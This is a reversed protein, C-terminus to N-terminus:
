LGSTGRRARSLYLGAYVLADLLGFFYLLWFPELVFRHRPIVAATLVVLFWMTGLVPLFAWQFPRLRAPRFLAIFAGVLAGLYYLPLGPLSYTASYRADPLHFYTVCRQWTAELTNFWAVRDLRYHADVFARAQALSDLPSGILGPGLAASIKPKGYLSKAQKEHFTYDEFDGGSDLDVPALFKGIALGPLQWPHALACETALLRCLDSMNTGTRLELEAEDSADGADAEAPSAAHAPTLGAIAHPHEKAYVILVDSIHKATRVVDENAISAARAARTQDRLPRIYPGLGPATRPNDPTLHVLSAYLLLGSHSTKTISLMLLMLLVAAGSQLAAPRWQPLQTFLPLLVGTALLLNGEPRAAAVFFMAALVGGFTWWSPWLAYCTGALALAVACFVFGSESMLTHEWFIMAPQLAALVTLPIILWRWFTFWLRGLAGVMLILLLGRLHQAFPIVIMAPIRFLFAITYLVPTLFTTKGHVTFHHHVKLYFATTMFDHTDPHYYGYPMAVTLWARLLLGLLVGPVCYWLFEHLRRDALFGAAAASYRNSRV